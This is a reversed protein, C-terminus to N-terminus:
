RHMERSVAAVSMLYFVGIYQSPLAPRSGGGAKGGGLAGGGGTM